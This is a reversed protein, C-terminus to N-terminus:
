CSLLLSYYVLTQPESQLNFYVVGTSRYCLILITMKIMRINLLSILKRFVICLNATYHVHFMYSDTSCHYVCDDIWSNM